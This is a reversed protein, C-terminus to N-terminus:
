DEKEVVTEFLKNKQEEDKIIQRLSSLNTRINQKDVLEKLIKEM